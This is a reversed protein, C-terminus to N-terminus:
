DKIKKIVPNFAKSAIMVKDGVHLKLAEEKSVVVESISSGIALSVIYVIDAKKIELVEGVFSFKRSGLTSSFLESPTGDQTVSGSELVVMRTALKFIESTDHSVLLTTIGFARHIKLIEDQLKTRTTKDLASLPEDLLLIKPRRAVARALAVRQQQGGSLSAPYRDALETLEILELLKHVEKKDDAAFAINERVSMNPFLSYNQFVFGIARKQPKLNIGKARDVWVEGDVVIEGSDPVDLGALMRMLTTKGSGSKGSLAVFSGDEIERDVVLDFEGEAGSLRKTLNLKIM